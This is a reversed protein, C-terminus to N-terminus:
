ARGYDDEKRVIDDEGFYTGVQTEIFILNENGPNRVRHWTEVPIDVSQRSSLHIDEEDLTVVAKGQVIYWHEFRQNHMQLSLRQGPYVVIRKVKHDPADELIVYYGWPRHDERTGLRHIKNYVEIYETVMRDACFNDEVWRRCEERDIDDLHRLKKAAEEVTSVLFGTKGDNILEPMSGRDFAVVPTGCAMAEIVSMGFPENINIPHILACAEGLLTDIQDHDPNGIHQITEGDLYPKVLKSFYEKDEIDGAIILRKGAKRAIEIAKGTGMEQCVPALNLLYEGPKPCYMLRSPEIGHHITATYTLGASRAADSVSVYYVTHNYKEYVPLIKPSTLEYITTLVPTSTMGSYSLPLIGFHNHIIDFEEGREFVESIHLCEWVRPLISRDETTGRPCVGSLRGGTMSNKTAFLTVDIGRQVLGETLLSVINERPGRYASPASFAIPSLMAIRM